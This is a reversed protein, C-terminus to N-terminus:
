YRFIVSLDGGKQLDFKSLLYNSLIPFLIVFLIAQWFYLDIKFYRFIFLYFQVIIIFKIIGTLMSIGPKWSFKYKINKDVVQRKPHKLDLFQKQQKVTKIPIIRLENLKINTIQVSERVNKDFLLTIMYITYYTLFLIILMNAFIM